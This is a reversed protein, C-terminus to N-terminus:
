GNHHVGPDRLSCRVTAVVTATVCVSVVEHFRASTRVNCYEIRLIAAAFSGVATASTWLSSNRTIFSQSISTSGSISLVNGSMMLLMLMARCYM